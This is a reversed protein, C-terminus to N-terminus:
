ASVASRPAFGYCSGCLGGSGPRPYHCRWKTDSTAESSHRGDIPFHGDGPHPCAPCDTSASAQPLREHNRKPRYAGTGSSTPVWPPKWPAARGTLMSGSEGHEFRASRAATYGATIWPLQRDREFFPKPMGLLLTRTLYQRRQSVDRPLTLGYISRDTINSVVLPYKEAPSDGNDCALIDYSYDCDYDYCCMEDGLLQHPFADLSGNHMHLRMPLREESDPIPGLLLVDNGENDGRERCGKAGGCSLFATANLLRDTSEWDLSGKVEAHLAFDPLWFDPLYRFTPRGICFGCFLPAECTEHCGNKLRWEVEYGQAEYQWRIGLTDFFVAWRAELRSRFYCGAYWTQIAPITM